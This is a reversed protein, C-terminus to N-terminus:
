IAYTCENVDKIDEKEFNLDLMKSTFITFNILYFGMIPLYFGGNTHGLGDALEELKQMHFDVRAQAAHRQVYRAKSCSVREANKLFNLGPSEEYDEPRMTLDM